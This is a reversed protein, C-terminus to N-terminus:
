RTESLYVGAERDVLWEGARALRAPCDRTEGSDALAKMVAEAKPDGNALMLVARAEGITRSTVTLRRPPPKPAALVVAVRRLREDLLPSGPFLSATHGDEGIGLLLLDLPEALHAEYERAAAELEDADARM